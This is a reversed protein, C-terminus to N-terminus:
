LKLSLDLKEGGGAEAVTGIASSQQQKNRVSGNEQFDGINIAAASNEPNANPIVFSLPSGFGGAVGYSSRLGYLNTSPPSDLLEYGSGYGYGHPPWPMARAAQPWHTMTRHQDMHAGYHYLTSGGRFPLTAASPAPLYYPYLPPSALQGLVRLELEKNLRILDLERRHANQHGGLSQSSYFDKNFSRCNFLREYTPDVVQLCARKSASVSSEGLTGSSSHSIEDGVNHNSCLKLTLLNETEEDHETEEFKRKLKRDEACGVSIRDSM